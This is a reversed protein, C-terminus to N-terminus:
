AAKVPDSGGIIISAPVYEATMRTVSLTSAMVDGRIGKFYAPSFATEDAFFGDYHTFYLTIFM